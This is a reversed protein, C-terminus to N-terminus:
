WAFGPPSFSSSAMSRSRQPAPFAPKTHFFPQEDYLLPNTGVLDNMHEDFKTKAPDAMDGFCEALIGDVYMRGQGITLAGGAGVGIKFADPTTLPYVAQGVTDYMEARDRRDLIAENENADSDLSVRGQQKLVGSFGKVPDFTFRTYDGGM